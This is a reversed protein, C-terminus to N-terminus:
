DLCVIIGLRTGPSIARAYATNELPHKITVFTSSGAATEVSADLSFIRLIDKKPITTSGKPYGGAGDPGKQNTFTIFEDGCRFDTAFAPGSLLLLALAGAASARGLGPM